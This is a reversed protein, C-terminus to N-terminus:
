GIKELEWFIGQGRFIYCFYKEWITPKLSIIKSLFPVQRLPTELSIIRTHLKFNTQTYFGFENNLQTEPIMYDFSLASFGHIHTPDVFTAYSSFHPVLIYLKGGPKMIRHLENVVSLKDQLHEIVSIAVIKDYSNSEIPYPFINLNHVYTPLTTDNIDLTEFGLFKTNLGAGIILGCQNDELLKIEPLHETWIPYLYRFIKKFLSKM